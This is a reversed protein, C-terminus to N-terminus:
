QVLETYPLHKALNKDFTLLPTADDLQAYVSLCCDTFSESSHKKYLSLVKHFLIRNCNINSHTLLNTIHDVVLDRPFDMVCEMVYVAEILAADAVNYTVNKDLLESALMQQHVNDGVMWRLLINTDLSKSM